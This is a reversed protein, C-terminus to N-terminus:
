PRSAASRTAGPMMTSVTTMSIGDDVRDQHCELLVGAQVGRRAHEHRHIPRNALKVCQIRCCHALWPPAWTAHEGPVRPAWNQLAKQVVNKKVTIV